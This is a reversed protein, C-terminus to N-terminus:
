WIRQGFWAFLPQRAMLFGPPPARRKAIKRQRQPRLDRKRPDSTQLENANSPQLEAFAERAKASANVPPAPAAAKATQPPIITPISTDFVVREPWKQESRIRVAPLGTDVRDSAPLDPSFAIAIFLLALLVGGVYLFYRALPM